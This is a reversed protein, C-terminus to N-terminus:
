SLELSFFPVVILVCLGCSFLCFCCFAFLVSLSFALRCFVHVHFAMVRHLARGRSERGSGCRASLWSVIDKPVRTCRSQWVRTATATRCIRSASGFLPRRAALSADNCRPRCDGIGHQRLHYCFFVSFLFHISSSALAFLFSSFILFSPLSISIFLLPFSFSLFFVSLFFLFTTSCIDYQAIWDRHDLGVDNALLRVLSCCIQLPMSVLGFESLRSVSFREHSKPSVGCLCDCHLVLLRAVFFFFFVRRKFQFGHLQRLFFGRSSHIEYFFFFRMFVSTVRCHQVFICVDGLLSVINSLLM